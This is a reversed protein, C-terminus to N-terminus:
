EMFIYAENIAQEAKSLIENDTPNDVSVGYNDIYRIISNKYFYLRHEEKGLFIFAFILEGNTSDFYYRREFRNGKAGADYQIWRIKPDATKTSNDYYVRIDDAKSVATLSNDATISYYIPRITNVIYEEVNTLQVRNYVGSELSSSAAMGDLAATEITINHGATDADTNDENKVSLNDDELITEKYIEDIQEIIGDDNTNDNFRYSSTFYYTLVGGCIFVAVLLIAFLYLHKNKTKKSGKMLYGGPNEAFKQTHLKQGCKTCIQLSDLSKEGCNGCFIYNVKTKTQPAGCEGCFDMGYELKAGCNVCVMQQINASYKPEQRGCVICKETSNVTECNPCKWM